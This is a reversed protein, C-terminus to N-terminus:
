LYNPDVTLFAGSLSNGERMLRQLARIDMYASLGGFDTIIGTVTVERVPRLGELAEVTIKDGTRLRLLDALKESLVVGNTPLTVIREESDMLRFLERNPTLGMIGIQRFRHGFRLRVPVSRYPEGRFVGPLRQIEYLATASAPEVFSITLDQRQTRNFQFEMIYNASDETFSGLILVAVALAIGLCSLSSKLRQREMNRIVMRASQSFLNQLGAREIITPSYSAPQQPQMAVAPPLKVAKWIASLTGLIASGGSIAIALFFVGPDLYFEFLPFRFFRTYLETLGHGLWAGVFTGLAVGAVAILLVLKLYHLGVEIKTYGFAKLVAIQERQTGILRNLVVNLLFATVTLFILPAVLAMARLQKMENTVFRNSLQDERGYAGLGGYPETLRDLRQLVDAESAGSMLTLAVDNFAGDMNFAPALEDYGMWFVGFRKDDPLLEGGRVSYLYEPSLAIGVIKLEQRRGNVVALVTDGPKLSNAEAFAVGVLVEGSRGPEIYRGTRLYLENLGLTQREPISVLRGVAPESVGPVDLTVDVVIRTQVQSVGPIESIRDALSNPARKVHTFIQAFRSRDYYKKQTLELSKMTSLSTIFTAVGCAMVLCIAVVQAKMNLLDRILKRNLASM